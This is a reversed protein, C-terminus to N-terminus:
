KQQSTGTIESSIFPLKSDCGINERSDRVVPLDIDCLGVEDINSNVEFEKTVNIDKYPGTVKKLSRETQKENSNECNSKKIDRSEDEEVLVHKKTSLWKLLSM